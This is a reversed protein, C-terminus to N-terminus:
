TYMKSVTVWCTISESVTSQSMIIHVHAEPIFTLLYMRFWVNLDGTENVSRKFDEFELSGVQTFGSFSYVTLKAEPVKMRPKMVIIYNYPSSVLSTMM